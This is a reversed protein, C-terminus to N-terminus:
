QPQQWAPNRHSNFTLPHEDRPHRLSLRWAHLCLPPADVPLTQTGGIQGDPLYSPDGCVPHGALWLHVRIQNTRGTALDAELLATGDADRRLVRFGTRAPKGAAADALHTGTQGPTRSIPADVVFHDDRPSSITRVLYTKRVTGARFQRQIAHCDRKSKALVVVGTTNADLRHAHLPPPDLALALFHQLTNRNYRGSPHMPLPAPKDLVLLADDEHVVRIDTAVAPEVCDPFLQIIRMGAPLCEAANLVRGCPHLFRGAACRAEWDGAPVEPFRLRLMAVLALGDAAAPVVIPRRNEYARGGPQSEAAHRLRLETPRSVFPPTM